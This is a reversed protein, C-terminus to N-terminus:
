QNSHLQLNSCHKHNVRNECETEKDSRKNYAIIYQSASLNGTM